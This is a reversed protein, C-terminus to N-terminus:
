NNDEGLFVSIATSDGQRAVAVYGGVVKGGVTGTFLLFPAGVTASPSSELTWPSKALNEQYFATVKETDDKTEFNVLWGTGGQRGTLDQGKVSSVVKAGRYVPFEKPFDEPLKGSNLEVDVDGGGSEEIAREVLDAAREEDSDGGCAVAAIAVVAVTVLSLTLVLRKM